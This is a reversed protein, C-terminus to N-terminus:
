KYVKSTASRSTVEITPTYNSNISISILMNTGNSHDNAITQAKSSLNNAATIIANRLDTKNFAMKIGGGFIYLSSAENLSRRRREREFEAIM